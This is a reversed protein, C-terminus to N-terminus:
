AEPTAPRTAAPRRAAQAQASATTASPRIGGTKRSALNQEVKVMEDAPVVSIDGGDIYQQLNEEGVIELIKDQNERTFYTQNGDADEYNFSKILTVQPKAM